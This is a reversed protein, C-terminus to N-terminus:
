LVQTSNEPKLWEAKQIPDQVELSCLNIAEQGEEKWSGEVRCVRWSEVPALTFAVVQEPRAVASMRAAWM